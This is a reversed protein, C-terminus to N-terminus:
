RDSLHKNDVMEKNIIKSKLWEEFEAKEVYRKYPSPRYVYFEGKSAYVEFQKRTIGLDSMIKQKSILEM